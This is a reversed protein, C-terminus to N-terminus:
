RRRTGCSISSLLAVSGFVSTYRLMESVPTSQVLALPMRNDMGKIAEVIVDFAGMAANFGVPVRSDVLAKSM